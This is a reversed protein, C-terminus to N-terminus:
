RLLGTAGWPGKKTGNAIELVLRYGKKLNFRYRKLYLFQVILEFFYNARPYVKLRLNPYV